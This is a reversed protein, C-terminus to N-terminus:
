VPVYGFKQTVDVEGFGRIECECDDVEVIRFHQGAKFAGFDKLWVVKRYQNLREDLQNVIDWEFYEDM